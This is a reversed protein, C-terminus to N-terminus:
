PLVEELSERWREPMPEHFFHRGPAGAVSHFAVVGGAAPWDFVLAKARIPFIRMGTPGYIGTGEDQYLSHPANSMIFTRVENFSLQPNSHEIGEVLAGTRRSSAAQTKEVARDAAEEVLVIGHERIRPALQDALTAM